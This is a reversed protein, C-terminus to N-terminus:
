YRCALTRRPLKLPNIHVFKIDMKKSLWRDSILQRMDNHLVILEQEVMSSQRWRNYLWFHVSHQIEIINALQFSRRITTPYGTHIGYKIQLITEQM